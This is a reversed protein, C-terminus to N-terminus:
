KVLQLIKDATNQEEKEIIRPHMSHLFNGVGFRKIFIIVFATLLSIRINRAHITFSKLVLIITDVMASIRVFYIRLMQGEGDCYDEHM